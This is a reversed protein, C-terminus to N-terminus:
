HGRASERFSPHSTVANDSQGDFAEDLVLLRTEDSLLAQILMLKRAEGTSLGHVPSHRLHQMDFLKLLAGADGSSAAEELPALAPHEQPTTAFEYRSIPLTALNTKEM